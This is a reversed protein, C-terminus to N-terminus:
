RQVTSIDTENQIYTEKVFWVMGARRRYLPRVASSCFETEGNLATSEFIELKAIGLMM